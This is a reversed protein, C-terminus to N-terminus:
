IFNLDKRVLKRDIFQIGAVLVGVLVAWSTVDQFKSIGEWGYSYILSIVASGVITFVGIFALTYFLRRQKHEIRDLKALVKTALDSKSDVFDSKELETFLTQYIIGDKESNSEDFTIQKQIEKDRNM